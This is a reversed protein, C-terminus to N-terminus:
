EWAVVFGTGWEAVWKQAIQKRAFPGMGVKYVVPMQKSHMVRGDLRTHSQWGALVQGAAESSSFAGVQVYWGSVPAEAKSSSPTQGLEMSMTQAPIAQINVAALSDSTPSQSATHGKLWTWNGRNFSLVVMLVILFLLFGWSDMGNRRASTNAMAIALDQPHYRRAQWRNQQGQLMGVVMAGGTIVGLLLLIVSVYISEM